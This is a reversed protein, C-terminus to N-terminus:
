LESEVLVEFAQTTPQFPSPGYTINSKLGGLATTIASLYTLGIPTASVSPAGGAAQAVSLSPSSAPVQSALRGEEGSPPTETHETSSKKATKKPQPAPVGHVTGHLKIIQVTNTELNDDPSSATHGSSITLGADYPTDATPTTTSAGFFINIVCSNGKKIPTPELKNTMANTTMCTTTNLVQFANPDSIEIGRIIRDAGSVNSVNLTQTFGDLFSFGLSSRDLQLAFYEQLLGYVAGLHGYYGQSAQYLGVQDASTPDEVLIACSRKTEEAVSNFDTDLEERRESLEELDDNIRSNDEPMGVSNDEELSKRDKQLNKVAERVATKDREIVRAQRDKKLAERCADQHKDTIDAIRSAIEQMGKFAMIQIEVPAGAAGSSSATGSQGTSALAAGAGVGALGATTNSQAFSLGVEVILIVVLIRM